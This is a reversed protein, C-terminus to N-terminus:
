ADVTRANHALNTHLSIHRSARLSIYMVILVIWSVIHISGFDLFGKASLVVHCCKDIHCGWSYFLRLLSFGSIRIVVVCLCVAVCLGCLLIEFIRLAENVAGLQPLAVMAGSPFLM